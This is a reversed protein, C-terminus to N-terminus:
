KASRHPTVHRDCELQGNAALHALRTPEPLRYGRCCHLIWHISNELDIKHGISIYLPKVSKRTRVAAGIIEGNDTLLSYGGAEDPLFGCQGTLRSKACGIAPIDLLLGLHTAIGFRRPHAIGQGDMILLEPRIRLKQWAEIILPAERFSLYGPVYPFHLAGEAHSTEVPLLSPNELVVVSARGLKSFRSVSVDIGVIFRPNLISGKRIVRASLENQLTRAEIISPSWTHSLCNDMPTIIIALDSM